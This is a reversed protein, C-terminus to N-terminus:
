AIMEIEATVADASPRDTLPHTEVAEHRPQYNRARREEDPLEGSRLLDVIEM